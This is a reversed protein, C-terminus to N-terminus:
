FYNRQPFYIQLFIFTRVSFLFYSYRDGSCHRLWIICKMLSQGILVMISLLIICLQKQNSLWWILIENFFYNRTKQLFIISLVELYLTIMKFKLHPYINYENTVSFIAYFSPHLYRKFNPPKARFGRGQKRKHMYIIFDFLTVHYSQLKYLVLIPVGILKRYLDPFTLNGKQNEIIQLRYRQNSTCTVRFKVM